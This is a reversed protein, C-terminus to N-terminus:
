PSFRDSLVYAVIGKREDLSFVSRWAPMKKFGNTVRDFVFDASYRAPALKPAKGPYASSGHCHRCQKSWLAEGTGVAEASALFDDDFEPAEESTDTSYAPLTAAALAEASPAAKSGPAYAPSFTILFALLDKIEQETALGPFAMTTGPVYREPGAIFKYLSREAWVLGEEGKAHMPESYDHGEATGATRGFVHNLTPGIGHAAGDGIAHCAACQGFTEKGKIPNDAAVAPRDPVLLLVLTAGALLTPLRATVSPSRRTTANPTM